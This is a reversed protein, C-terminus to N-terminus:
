RQSVRAGNFEGTRLGIRGAGGRGWGPREAGPMGPGPILGCASRGLANSGGGAGRSAKAVGTARGSM